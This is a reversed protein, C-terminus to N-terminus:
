LSEGHLNFKLKTLSLACHLYSYPQDRHSIFYHFHISYATKRLSM